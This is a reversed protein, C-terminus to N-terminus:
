SDIPAFGRKACITTHVFRNLTLDIPRRQALIKRDQALLDIPMRQNIEVAGGTRLFWCADEVDDPMIILVFIGIHMAAQVREARARGFMVFFGAL